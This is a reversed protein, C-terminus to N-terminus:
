RSPLPGRGQPSSGGRLQNPGTLVGAVVSGPARRRRSRRRGRRGGAVRRCQAGDGAGVLGRTSPVGALAAAGSAPEAVLLRGVPVGSLVLAAVTASALKWPAFRPRRGPLSFVIGAMGSATERTAVDALAVSLVALLAPLLGLRVASPRLALGTLAAAVLALVLPPRARFTLAADPSVREVLPLVLRGIPRAARDLLRGLSCRGRTGLAGTRAPDFRRFFVLALPAVAATGLLSLARGSLAEPSFDLGGFYV